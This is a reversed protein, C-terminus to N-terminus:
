FLLVFGILIVCVTWLIAPIRNAPSPLRIDLWRGVGVGVALIGIANHSVEILFQSKIAFVSHFHTPRLKGERTTRGYRTSRM